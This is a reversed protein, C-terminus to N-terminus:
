ETLQDSKQAESMNQNPNHCFESLNRLQKCTLEWTQNNLVKVSAASWLAERSRLEAWRCWFNASRKLLSITKTPSLIDACCIYSYLVTKASGHCQCQHDHQSSNPHQFLGVSHDSSSSSSLSILIFRPWTSRLDSLSPNTARSDLLVDSPVTQGYTSPSESDSHYEHKRTAMSREVMFVQQSFISCIQYSKPFFLPRKFILHFQSINKFFYKSREYSKLWIDSKVKRPAKQFRCFSLSIQLMDLRRRTTFCTLRSSTIAKWLPPEASVSHTVTNWSSVRSVCQVSWLGCEASVSVPLRTAWTPSFPPPLLEVNSSTIECWRFTNQKVM